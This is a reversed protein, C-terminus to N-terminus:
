LDSSYYRNWIGRIEGNGSNVTSFEFAEWGAAGGRDLQHIQFGTNDSMMEKFLYDADVIGQLSAM